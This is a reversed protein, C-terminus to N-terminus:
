KKSFHNGFFQYNNLIVVQNFLHVDGALHITARTNRAKNTHQVKFAQPKAHMYKKNHYRILIIQVLTHLRTSSSLSTRIACSCLSNNLAIESSM